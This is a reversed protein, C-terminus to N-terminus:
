DNIFTFSSIVGKLFIYIKKVNVKEANRGDTNKGRSNLSSRGAINTKGLKRTSNYVSLKQKVRGAKLKLESQKFFM